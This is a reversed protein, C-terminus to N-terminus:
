LCFTCVNEIRSIIFTFCFEIEIKWTVYLPVSQTKMRQSSLDDTGQQSPRGVLSCLLCSPYGSDPFGVADAEAKEDTSNGGCCTSKGRSIEQSLSLYSEKPCARSVM